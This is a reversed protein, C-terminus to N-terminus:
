GTTQKRVSRGSFHQRISRVLIRRISSGPYDGPGEQRQEKLVNVISPRVVKRFSPSSPSSEYTVVLQSPNQEPEIAPFYLLPPPGQTLLFVQGNKQSNQIESIALGAAYGFLQAFFHEPHEIRSAAFASFPPPPARTDM